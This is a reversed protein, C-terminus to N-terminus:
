KTIKLILCVKQFRRVFNEVFKEEIIKLDDYERYYTYDVSDIMAAQTVEKLLYYEEDNTTQYDRIIMMVVIIFIGFLLLIYGWLSEKM